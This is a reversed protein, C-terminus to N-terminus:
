ASRLKEARDVVSSCVPGFLDMVPVHRHACLSHDPTEDAARLCSRKLPLSHFTVVSRHYLSSLPLFGCTPAVGLHELKTWKTTHVIRPPLSPGSGPATECLDSM